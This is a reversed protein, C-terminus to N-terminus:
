KAVAYLTRLLKTESLSVGERTGCNYCPDQPARFTARDPYYVEKM